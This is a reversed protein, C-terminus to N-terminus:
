EQLLDRTRRDADDDALHQPLARQRERGDDRGHARHCEQERQDLMRHARYSGQRRAECAAIITGTASAPRMAYHTRPADLYPMVIRNRRAAISNAAEAKM